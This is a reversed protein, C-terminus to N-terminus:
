LLLGMYQIFFWASCNREREFIYANPSRERRASQPLSTKKSEREGSNDKLDLEIRDAANVFVWAVLGETRLFIIKQGETDWTANVTPTTTPYGLDVVPEMGQTTLFENPVGAEVRTGPTDMSTVHITQQFDQDSSATSGIDMRALEDENAIRRCSWGTKVPSPNTSHNPSRPLHDLANIRRTSQLQHM